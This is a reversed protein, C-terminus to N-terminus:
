TEFTIGVADDWPGTVPTETFGPPVTAASVTSAAILGFIAAVFLAIIACWLTPPVRPDIPRRYRSWQRIPHHPISRLMFLLRHPYRNRNSAPVFGAIELGAFRTSMIASSPSSRWHPKHLPSDHITVRGM